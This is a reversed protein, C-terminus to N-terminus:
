EDIEAEQRPGRLARETTKRFVKSKLRENRAQQRVEKVEQDLKFYKGGSAGAIIALGLIRVLPMSGASYFYVVLGAVSGIALDGRVGHQWGPPLTVNDQALRRTSVIHSVLGGALGFLGSLLGPAAWVSIWNSSTWEGALRLLALIVETM